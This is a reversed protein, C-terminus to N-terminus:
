RRAGLRRYVILLLSLAAIPTWRSLEFLFRLVLRLTPVDALTDGYTLSVQYWSMVIIIAWLFRPLFRMSNSQDRLLRDLMLLSWSAITWEGLFLGWWSLKERFNLQEGGIVRMVIYHAAILACASGLSCLVAIM